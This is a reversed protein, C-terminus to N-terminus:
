PTPAASHVPAKIKFRFVLFFYPSYMMPFIM